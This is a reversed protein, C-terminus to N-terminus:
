TRRRPTALSPSCHSVTCCSCCSPEKIADDDNEDGGAAFQAAMVLSSCDDTFAMMADQVALPHELLLRMADVHGQRAAVDFVTSGNGSQHVLMAQPDVSPHDLLLRPRLLRRARARRM